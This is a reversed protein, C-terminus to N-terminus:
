STNKTRSNYQTPHLQQAPCRQQCRRMGIREAGDSENKSIANRHHLRPSIGIGRASAPITVTTLKTVFKVFQPQDQSKAIIRPMLIM